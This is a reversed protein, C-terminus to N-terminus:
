AKRKPRVAKNQVESPKVAKDETDDQAVKKVLGLRVAQEMPIQEGKGCVFIRNGAPDTVYVRETTVYMQKM